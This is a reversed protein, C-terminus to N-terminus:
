LLLAFRYAPTENEMIAIEYSIASTTRGRRRGRRASNNFRSVMEDQGPIETELVVLKVM